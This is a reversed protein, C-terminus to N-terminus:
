REVEGRPGRPSRQMQKPERTSQGIQGGGGAMKEERKYKM